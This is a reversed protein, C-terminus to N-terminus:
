VQLMERIYKIFSFKCIFDPYDRDIFINLYQNM